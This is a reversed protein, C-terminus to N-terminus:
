GCYSKKVVEYLFKESKENVSGYYGLKLLGSVEVFSYWGVSLLVM